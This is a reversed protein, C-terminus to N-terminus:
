WTKKKEFLVLLDRKCQDTISIATCGILLRPYWLDFAWKWQVRYENISLLLRKIEDFTFVDPRELTEFIDARILTWTKVARGYAITQFILSIIGLAVLTILTIWFLTQMYERDILWVAFALLFLLVNFGAKFAFFLKRM